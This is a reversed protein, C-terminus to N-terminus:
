PQDICTGTANSYLLPIKYANGNLTLTPYHLHKILVCEYSVEASVAALFLGTTNYWTTLDPNTIVNSLEKAIGQATSDNIENPGTIVKCGPIDQYPIAAYLLHVPTSKIMTDSAGHFTCITGYSVCVTATCVDTGVPFHLVYIDNYGTYKTGLTTAATLLINGVDTISAQNSPLSYTISVGTSLTYRGSATSGVYQDLVHSYTSAAFDRVFQDPTAVTGVTGWCPAKTCNILVNHIRATTVVPGGNNTLASPSYTNTAKPPLVKVQHAGPPVPLAEQVVVHGESPSMHVPGPVEHMARIQAPTVTVSLNEADAAGMLLAVTGVVGFIAALLSTRGVHFKDM